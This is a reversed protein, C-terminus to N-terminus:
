DEKETEPKTRKSQAELYTLLVDPLALIRRIVQANGGLRHLTKDTLFDDPDELADHISVLWANLEDQLDLWFSSRMGDTLDRQSCRLRFREDQSSLDQM